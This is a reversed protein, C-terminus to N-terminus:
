KGDNLIWTAKKLDNSKWRGYKSFLNRYNFSKKGFVVNTGMDRPNEETSINQVHVDGNFM